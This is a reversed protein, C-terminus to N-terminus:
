DAPRSRCRHSLFIQGRCAGVSFAQRRRVFCFCRNDETDNRTRWFLPGVPRHACYRANCASSKGGSETSRATKKWPGAECAPREVVLEEKNTLARRTVNEQTDTTRVYVEEKLTLQMRVIPVYESVPIILTDGDRRPEDRQEVPRNIPVRRVDVQQRRLQLSVPHMNERVDKRVRVAGTEVTAVGVAIEERVASVRVPDSSDPGPIAGSPEEERM